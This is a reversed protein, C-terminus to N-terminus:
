GFGLSTTLSALDSLEEFKGVEEDFILREVHQERGHDRREGFHEASILHGQQKGFFLYQLYDGGDTLRQAVRL